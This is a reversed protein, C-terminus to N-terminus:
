ISLDDSGVFLQVLLGDMLWCRNIFRSAGMWASICNWLFQAFATSVGEAVVALEMFAVVELMKCLQAANVSIREESSILQLRRM